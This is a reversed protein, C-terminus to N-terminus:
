ARSGTAAGDRSPRAGRDSPPDGTPRGENTAGSAAEPRLEAAEQSTASDGKASRGLFAKLIRHAQRRGISAETSSADRWWWGDDRMARAASVFRETFTEFQADTLSHAFIFRGTGVWSLVCGEARLYYQLMWNYESPTTYLTTWVSVMNAVRVPLDEAALRENLDAARVNWREDLDEYTAQIEPDDWRLLFENMATMVYPHSNFTGRAFCIDSPHDDRYRKMLDRRGCVVGVPLGGGLSKGYTVLDARVDFYAQTGGLGLRFGMFVDDVILVIGNRTCAERVARLWEAYARKDYSASRGSGLLMTDGPANANPHLAQPPHILVCAIDRRTRLVELARPSMDALTHVEHSPRPNGVGVQVGDWWGHYSGCFRVVHSRGTHYRALRVAQMVAETGSMHFSVADQGSIARLREVNDAVVPHYPGLVPGLDRAREVAREICAKYFDYGFLNVGYAGTLDFARNGDLDTLEPGASASAVNGLRFTRRVRNRFPFPVRYANTFEVDPVRDELAETFAVSSPASERLTRALREFAAERARAVDAPAEDARFFEDDGLEYFPLLKALRRAMRVHGRLSPHKARSLSLRIAIRRLAWIAGLGGGGYLLWDPM